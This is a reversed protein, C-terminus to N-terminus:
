NFIVNLAYLSGLEVLVSLCLLVDKAPVETITDIQTQLYSFGALFAIAVFWFAIRSLWRYPPAPNSPLIGSLSWVPVHLARLKNILSRHRLGASQEEHCLIVDGDALVSRVGRLWNRGYEIQFEVSVRPDRIVAALNILRRRLRYEESTDSCMGLLLVSLKQPSAMEWVERAIRIEDMDVSPVLVVLRRTPHITSGQATIVKKGPSRPIARAREPHTSARPKIITIVKGPHIKIPPITM